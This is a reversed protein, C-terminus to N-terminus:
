TGNSFAWPKTPKIQCTILMNMGAFTTLCTSGLTNSLTCLSWPRVKLSTITSMRLKRKRSEYSMVNRPMLSWKGIQNGTKWVSSIKSYNSAILRPSSPWYIVTDDAFLRVKSKVYQPLDNIYALFLSMEGKEFSENVCKLFPDSILPWFVKYFEIPDTM